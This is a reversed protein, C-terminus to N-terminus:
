GREKRRYFDLWTIFLAALTYVSTLVPLISLPTGEKNNPQLNKFYMLIPHAHPIYKLNKWQMLVM